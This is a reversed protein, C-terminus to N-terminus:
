KGDKVSFEFSKCVFRSALDQGSGAPSEMPKEGTRDRVIDVRYEGLKLKGLPIIAFHQTVDRTMHNVFRYRIEIVNKFEKVSELHVYDGCVYSFFVISVESDAPLAAQRKTKGTLVDRAAQLASKDSGAVVFGEDPGKAAPYKIAEAIEQILSPIFSKSQPDGSGAGAPELKRVDKTGPMDLAWIDKLPIEVPKNPEDALLTASCLTAALFAVCRVIAM